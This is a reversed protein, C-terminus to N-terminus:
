AKTAENGHKWSRMDLIRSSGEYGCVRADLGLRVVETYYLTDTFEEAVSACKHQLLTLLTIFDNM